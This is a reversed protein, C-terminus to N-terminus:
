ERSFDRTHALPYERTRRGDDGRQLPFLLGRLAPQLQQHHERHPLAARARGRDEADRRRRSAAANALAFRAVCASERPNKLTTRAIDKM